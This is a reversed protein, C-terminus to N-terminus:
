CALFAFFNSMSRAVTAIDDARLSGKDTIHAFFLFLFSGAANALQTKIFLHCLTKLSSIAKDMNFTGNQRVSPINLGIRLEFKDLFLRFSDAPLVVGTELTEGFFRAGEDVASKTSSPVM